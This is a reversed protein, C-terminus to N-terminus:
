CYLKTPDQFVLQSFTVVPGTFELFDQGVTEAQTGLQAIPLSTLVLNTPEVLAALLNHHQQDFRIAVKIDHTWEIQLVYSNLDPNHFWNYTYTTLDNNRVTIYEDEFEKVYLIMVKRGNELNGTASQEPSYAKTFM